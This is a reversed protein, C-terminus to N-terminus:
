SCYCNVKTLMDDSVELLRNECENCVDEVEKMEKGHSDLDGIYDRFRDALIPYDLANHLSEKSMTKIAMFFKAMEAREMSREKLIAENLTTTEDLVPLTVDGDLKMREAVIHEASSRDWDAFEVGYKSALLIFKNLPLKEM